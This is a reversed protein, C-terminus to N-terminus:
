RRVFAIARVAMTWRRWRKWGQDNWICPTLNTHSSKRHSIQLLAGQTRFDEADRRPKDALAALRETERTLIMAEVNREMAELGRSGVKSELHFLRNELAEIQETARALAAGYTDAREREAQLESQWVTRERLAHSAALEARMKAVASQREQEAHRRRRGGIIMM